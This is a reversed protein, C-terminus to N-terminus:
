WMLRQLRQTRSTDSNDESRRLLHSAEAPPLPRSLLFGQALTCREDQLLMLQSFEEVGEAVVELDLTKAMAIIASAIAQDPGARHARRVFAQDIKLRDIPFERLRSFSSHGTGFDDISLQVGVAKLDRMMQVARDDNQMVVSETIELELCEAALGTDQLVKSVLECFGPQSLQLGSVNVAMRASNLGELQWNRAQTCAARLVWEGIQLILGTQEAVPIFTSPPVTGLEPNHWRLLAEMGSIRGTSLDFQPQYVLSLEHRDVASRLQGEITLRHLADASMTSDFFAFTGPARRKAFYMALDANRVLTEQDSGDSPYIAIGISPTVLVEHQALLMPQGIAEAIGRAVSGAAESDPLSPLLVMFEDGGLRSLNQSESGEASELGVPYIGRLTEVLRTAVLRLLEDGVGHGLTDNIRKFNDLDICLLGLPQQAQTAHQLANALRTRFYERNPLGTLSDFYALKRIREQAVHLDLTLQYGRLLYRVRHAILAWSIPKPIFDTAGAQYAKDISEDDDMGTVIVIPLLQGADKRLAECAEYGNLGPMDVDLMVLDFVGDRYQRLAEDGDLATTVRYGAARLTADMLMLADRDDDAVLIRGPGARM